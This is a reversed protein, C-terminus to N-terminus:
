KEQPRQGREGIEEVIDHVCKAEVKQIKSWINHRTHSQKGMETLAEGSDDGVRRKEAM